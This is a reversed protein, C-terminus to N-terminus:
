AVGSNGSKLNAKIVDFLYGYQSETPLSNYQFLFLSSMIEIASNTGCNRISKLPIGSSVAQTLEGITNYGARKLCHYARASLDLDEISRDRMSQTMYMLFHFKGGPKRKLEVGKIGNIIDMVTQCQNKNM